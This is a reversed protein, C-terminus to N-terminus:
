NKSRRKAHRARTASSNHSSRKITDASKRNIMAKQAASWKVNNTLKLWKVYRDQFELRERFNEKKIKELEQLNIEPLRM